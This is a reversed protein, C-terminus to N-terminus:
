EGWLAKRVQPSKKIVKPFDAKLQKLVHTARQARDPSNNSKIKRELDAILSKDSCGLRRLSQCLAEEMLPYDWLCGMTNENASEEYDGLIHIIYLIQALAERTDDKLIIAGYEGGTFMNKVAEFFGTQEEKYIKLLEAEYQRWGDGQAAKRLKLRIALPLRYCESGTHLGDHFLIRHEGVSIGFDPFYKKFGTRIRTIREGKGGNQDIEVKYLKRLIDDFRSQAIDNAETFYGICERADKYHGFEDNDKAWMNAGCFLLLLLFATFIIKM